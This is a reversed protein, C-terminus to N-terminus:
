DGESIMSIDDLDVTLIKEFKDRFKMCTENVSLVEGTFIFSNKLMLKCDKKGNYYAVDDYKM